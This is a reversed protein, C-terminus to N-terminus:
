SGMGLREALVSACLLAHERQGESLSIFRTTNLAHYFLACYYENMDNSPNQSILHYAKKYLHLITGYAKALPLNTTALKSPLQEVESFHKISCLVEEMQLCDELTADGPTALLQFRITADLMTIDRLIHSPGTKQFDILWARENSDVLLNHPNFDGHTTCLYTSYVFPRSKSKSARIPNIFAKEDKLAKFTLKQRGHVGPLHELTEVSHGLLRHYEDTLKVPQLGQRSAYWNRCTEDFLRDLVKTIQPLENKLYFEGFNTLIEQSNGLFTYIIGGLHPTYRVDIVATYCGGLFYQVYTKFNEYEEEVKKLDGFKVVVPRSAGGKEYHPQAYLVAAGSYGPILSRVMVSKADKFLRCLLDELEEAVQKQLLSNRKVRNEGINLNLAAQRPGSKGWHIELALNINADVTFVREVAELIAQNNIDAKSLFDAVKYDRFAYRIQEKTDYASFMIVKIAETTKQLHLEQLLKLGDFNRPDNEDMRIDLILVHYLNTLLQTRAEACSPVAEVQFGGRQLVSMIQERWPQVDDVVLIRGQKRM